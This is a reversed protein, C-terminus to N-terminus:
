RSGCEEDSSPAKSHHAGPIGHGGIQCDTRDEDEVTEGAPVPLLNPDLKRGWGGELNGCRSTVILSEYDSDSGQTAHAMARPISGGNTLSEQILATKLVGELPMRARQFCREKM